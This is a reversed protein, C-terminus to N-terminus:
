KGTIYRVVNRAITAVEARTIPADPAFTGDGKGNVIGMAALEDIQKEAWHGNTDKFKAMFDDGKILPLLNKEFAERTNGGFFNKGPCTKASKGDVYTGLSAGDATYWAHYVIGKTPDIKFKDTIAKCLKVIAEKQATTMVENDFNGVCEVCIAGTNSGYIGAPANEIDRGTVICGDPFVTYHQGIDAWGNTKIHYNRMSSQMSLHNDGTFQAYSPSYTHHLQLKTIGRKVNLKKIYNEFEASTLKKDMRVGEIYYYSTFGKAKKEHITDTGDHDHYLINDGDYGVVCVAHKDGSKTTIGMLPKGNQLLAKYDSSKKYGTINYFSAMIDLKDIDARGDITKEIEPFEGYDTCYEIPVSGKVLSNEFALSEAMGGKNKGSYNNRVYFYGKSLETDIGYRRLWVEIIKVISCAVCSGVNEGPLDQKFPKPMFAADIIYKNAM